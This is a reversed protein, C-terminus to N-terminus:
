RTIANSIVSATNNKVQSDLHVYINATTAYDSHGLWLQVEKLSVGNAILLSACSHRLDHFRIMKLNYKKLLTNFHQSVYNLKTRDGMADVYIYDAFENNYSSKAIKKNEEQQFKLDLLYEEIEPLLPLVRYSGKNKTRNKSVEKVVGDVKIETVTHRITITKDEFDIVDWKLGMIESRRLGYYIAMKIAFEIKMGKVIDLLQKIERDNYYEHIVQQRKPKEIDDAINSNILKIKVAYQLAKRINAHYHLITNSTLDYKKQAYQYFKQIHHTELDTLKIPNQQFYPFIRKKIIYVYSSYTTAEVSPKIMELWEVMYDAFMIESQNDEKNTMLKAYEVRKENLFIEAKKKNNKIPLKSSIWKTKREGNLDKYNLVAHYYGNKERLHGAVM